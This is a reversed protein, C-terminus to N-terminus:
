VQTYGNDDEDDDLIETADNERSSNQPGQSEQKRLFRNLKFQFDEDLISTSKTWIGTCGAVVCKANQKNKLIQELAM